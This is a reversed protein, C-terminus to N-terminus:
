STQLCQRKPEMDFLIWGSDNDNGSKHIKVQSFTVNIHSFNDSPADSILVTTFSMQETTTGGNETGYKDTEEEQVCGSLVLMMFVLSIIIIKFIVKM